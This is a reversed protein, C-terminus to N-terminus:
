LCRALYIRTYHNGLGRVFYKFGAVPPTSESTDYDYYDVHSSDDLYYRYNGLWYNCWYDDAPQYTSSAHSYYSGVYNDDCYDALNSNGAAYVREIDEYLCDTELANYIAVSGVVSVLNFDGGVWKHGDSCSSDDIEDKHCLWLATPVVWQFTDLTGAHEPDVALAATAAEVTMSAPQSWLVNQGEDYYTDMTVGNGNVFTDMLEAYYAAEAWDVQETTDEDQASAAFAFSVVLAGFLACVFVKKRDM